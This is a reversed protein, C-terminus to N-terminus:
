KGKKKDKKENDTKAEPAPEEAPEPDPDPGAAPAEAAAVLKRKQSDERIAEVFAVSLYVMMLLLEIGFVPVIAKVIGSKVTAAVASTAPVLIRYSNALSVNQYYDDATDNVLQILDNVKENLEKLDKEIKEVKDTSGIVARKLYTLRQNYYEITQKTESLETQAAIKRNILKDYEDSAISSETNTTSDSFIIIQDKEYDDFSEQITRLTDEDTKKLRELTEIRYEYYAQLRDKDKTINYVNMYSTILDLDLEQVSNIASKLDAFTYGTATSRFRTSDDSSLSSVYRNLTKLTMRFMDVAEAYDYDNYDLTALASGLAENYGFREFFYDRYRDLMTNLLLVADSRSLGSSKYDFTITYQTSYWSESLMAQAAALQGTQANEYVNKYATIREITDEPILGEILVNRRITEVLAPDFNCDSIAREIVDPSRLSDAKFVSGDPNKGKEIGSYNFSVLARVPTASTTSFFISSGTMIGGIIVATLFWAAFYKKLKRFVSSFSIVVENEQREEQKLIINVNKESQPNQTTDAM